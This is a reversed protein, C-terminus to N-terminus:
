TPRVISLKPTTVTGRAKAENEAETAILQGVVAKLVSLPIGVQYRDLLVDNVAEFVAMRSKPDVGLPSGLKVELKLPPRESM